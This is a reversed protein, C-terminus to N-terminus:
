GLLTCEFDLTMNTPPPHYRTGEYTSVLDLTVNTPTPPLFLFCKHRTLKKQTVGILVRGFLLLVQRTKLWQMSGTSYDPASGSDLVLSYLWNM